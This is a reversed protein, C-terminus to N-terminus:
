IKIPSIGTTSHETEDIVWCDDVYITTGYYSNVGFDFYTATPPVEITEDFVHWVNLDHPFYTLGYGGGRIIYYTDKNYFAKLEDTSITSSEASRTRFYCYTRAGKAKWQEVYYHFLIRIKGGPEVPVSQDITATSGSERSQMKASFRGKYVTKHDRRINYNNHCSWGDIIDYLFTQWKELDGNILLNMTEVDSKDGNENDDVTHDYGYLNTNDNTKNAETDLRDDYYHEDTNCSGLLISIGGFTMSCILHIFHKYTQINVREMFAKLNEIRKM